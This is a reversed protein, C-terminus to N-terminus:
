HRECIKSSGSSRCRLCGLFSVSVDLECCCKRRPTSRAAAASQLVQLLHQIVHVAVALAHARPLLLPHTQHFGCAPRRQLAVVLLHRQHSAQSQSQFRGPAVHVEHTNGVRGCMLYICHSNQPLDPVYENRVTVGGSERIAESHKDDVIGSYGNQRHRRAAMDQDVQGQIRVVGDLMYAPKPIHTGHRRIRRSHHLDWHQSHRQAAQFPPQPHSSNGAHFIARQWCHCPHQQCHM